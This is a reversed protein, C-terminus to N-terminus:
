RSVVMKQSVMGGNVSEAVVLYVGNALGSLGVKVEAEGHGQVDLVCQGQLTYFRVAAVGDGMKLRVADAAPNPAILFAKGEKVGFDEERVGYPLVRDMLAKRGSVGEVLLRVRVSKVGHVDEVKFRFRLAERLSEGAGLPPLRLESSGPLLTLVGEPEVELHLPLASPMSITSVNVVDVLLELEEGQALAGQQAEGGMKMYPYAVLQANQRPAVRVDRTWLMMSNAHVISLQVRDGAQVDLGTFTARGGHATVSQYIPAAGDRMRCFTVVSGEEACAVPLTQMGAMMLRPLNSEGRRVRQSRFLVSPDGFLHWEDASLEVGWEGGYAEIMKVLGSTFIDGTTLMPQSPMGQKLLLRNMEEQALM